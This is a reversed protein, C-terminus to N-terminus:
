MPVPPHPRELFSQGATEFRAPQAEGEANVRAGEALREQDFTGLDESVTRPTFGPPALIPFNSIAVRGSLSDPDQQVHDSFPADAGIARRTPNANLDHDVGETIDFFIGVLEGGREYLIDLM